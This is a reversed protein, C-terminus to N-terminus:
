TELIALDATFEGLDVILTMHEDPYDGDKKGAYDGFACAVYAPLCEPYVEVAIIDAPQSINQFSNIKSLISEKKAAIRAKDRKDGDTDAPLYYQNVPISCGVICPKGGIGAKVLTDNVLVRSVEGIQYDPDLTSLPSTTAKNVTYENGNVVWSLVPEEGFSASVGKEVLSPTILEHRKGQEDDFSMATNGSGDDIAVVYIFPKKAADSFIESM